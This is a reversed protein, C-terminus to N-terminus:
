DLGRGMGSSLKLIPRGNIGTDDFNQRGKM